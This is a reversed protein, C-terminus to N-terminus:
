EGGPNRFFKFFDSDPELLLVNKKSTFSSKYANL